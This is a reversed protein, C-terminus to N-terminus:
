CFWLFLLFLIILFCVIGKAIDDAESHKIKNLSSFSFWEELDSNGKHNDMIIGEITNILFSDGCFTLVLSNKYVCEIALMERHM